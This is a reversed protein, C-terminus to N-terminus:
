RVYEQRTRHQHHEKARVIHIHCKIFVCERLRRRARSEILSSGEEDYAGGGLRRRDNSPCPTKLRQVKKKANKMQRALDKREKRLKMQQKSLAELGAAIPDPPLAQMMAAKTAAIAPKAANAADEMARPNLPTGTSSPKCHGRCTTKKDHHRQRHAPLCTTAFITTPINCPKKGVMASASCTSRGCRGAHENQWTGATTKNRFYLGCTPADFTPILTFHCCIKAQAVRSTHTGVESHCKHIDM